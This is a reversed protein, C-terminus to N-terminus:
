NDPNLTRQMMASLRLRIKRREPKLVKTKFKNNYERSPSTKISFTGIEKVKVDKNELLAQRIFEFIFDVTYKAHNLSLFPSNESTINGPNEFLAKAIESKTILLGNQITKAKRSRNINKIQEFPDNDSEKSEKHNQENVEQTM